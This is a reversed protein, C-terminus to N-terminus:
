NIWSNNIKAKLFVEFLKINVLKKKHSISIVGERFEPDCQMQM